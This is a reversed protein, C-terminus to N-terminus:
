PLSRLAVTFGFRGYTARETVLRLAVVRGTGRDFDLYGAVTAEARNNDDRGPYFTHKLKLTGDLRARVRDGEVLLVRAAMKLQEIRHKHPGDQAVDKAFDCTETQPYFYTLLRAAAERPVEWRTGPAAKAPPLLSTWEDRKRVLWNESPFEGWSGRHDVRAVLHFVLAGAEAKPPGSQAQPAVVPKGAPVKFRAVASELLKELRGPRAADSVILSAFGKGDPGLLYVCVSGAPRKQALAEHYVRQYIKREEPPAAGGKHYDENSAYVPVFHKNLLEIVRASSLPGARM